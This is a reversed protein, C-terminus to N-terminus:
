RNLVSSLSDPVMREEETATATCRGLKSSHPPVPRFVRHDMQALELVPISTAGGAPARTPITDIAGTTTAHAGTLVEEPEKAAAGRSSGWNRLAEAELM